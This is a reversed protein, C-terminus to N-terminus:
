AEFNFAITTRIANEGAPLVEHKLYSPFILMKGKEPVIDIHTSMFLNEYEDRRVYETIPNPTHIRFKGATENARVWYVGSIGSAGHQHMTHVGDEKYDRIKYQLGGGDPISIGTAEKYTLMAQIWEELLEPILQDVQIKNDYFDTETYLSELKELEPIIIGEVKNALDDSINHFLVGVPFYTELRM